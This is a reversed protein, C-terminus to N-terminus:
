FADDLRLGIRYGKDGWASCHRVEGLEVTGGIRVQVITGALISKPTLIGLGNKSVDVIKVRQRDLSLPHLEQFIADDGTSFRPECREYKEESKTKGTLHLSLRLGICQSLRERCTQCESLHSEVASIHEPDLRGRVYLELDDDHSHVTSRIDPIAFVEMGLGERFFMRLEAFLGLRSLPLM